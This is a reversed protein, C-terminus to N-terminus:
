YLFKLGIVINVDGKFFINFKKEDLNVGLYFNVGFVINFIELDIIENLGKLSLVIRNNM